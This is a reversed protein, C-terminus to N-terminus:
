LSSQPPKAPEDWKLLRVQFLERQCEFSLQTLIRSGPVHLVYDLGDVVIPLSLYCPNPLLAKANGGTINTLEGLADRIDGDTAKEPDIGFMVAAVRRALNCSCNMTLAGYWSGTIQVCGTIFREPHEQSIAQTSRQVELGLVSTWVSETIQYIEEEVFQM